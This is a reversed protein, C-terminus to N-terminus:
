AGPLGLLRSPPRQQRDGQTHSSDSCSPPRPHPFRCVGKQPHHWPTPNPATSETRPALARLTGPADTCSDTLSDPGGTGASGPGPRADGPGLRRRPAAQTCLKTPCHAPGPVAPRSPGAEPQSSCSTSPGSRGTCVLPTRASAPSSLTHWAKRWPIKGVWSDCGHRKHRRCQFASEKGSASGPFNM